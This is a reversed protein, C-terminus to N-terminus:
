APVRVEYTSIGVTNAGNDALVASTLNLDFGAGSGVTGQIRPTTTTGAASGGFNGVTDASAVNCFRYFMATLSSVGAQAEDKGLFHVKAKWDTANKSIARSAASTAFTLGVTGIDAATVDAAIKALLTHVGGAGVTTNLAADATAPVAGAYIYIFGGNLADQVSNGDLISNALADSIKIAM